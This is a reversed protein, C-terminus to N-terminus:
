QARVQGINGIISKFIGIEHGEVKTYSRAFKLKKEDNLDYEKVYNVTSGNDFTVMLIKRSKIKPIYFLFKEVEEAYYIWVDQNNFDSIITPSGMINMVSEKSTVGEQILQPESLQFSYGKSELRTICSTLLNLILFIYIFRM